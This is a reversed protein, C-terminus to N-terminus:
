GWYNPDLEHAFCPPSSYERATTRAEDTDKQNCQASDHNLALERAKIIQGSIKLAEGPERLPVLGEPSVYYIAVETVIFDMPIDHPQPYITEMRSLEFAVGIKLPQPMLSALTRDFYGGGYGLRYGKLDFGIPPILLANPQLVATGDPNPLNFVGKTVPAGPWWERFQLPEAKRTVIPLAAIAGGKRFERIAFRPDFEGKYPWYLGVTMRQLFPFGNILLRNIADNWQRYQDNTIALRQALLESRQLKRFQKVDDSMNMVQEM